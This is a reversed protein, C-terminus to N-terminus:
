FLKLLVNGVKKIIRVIGRVDFIVVFIVSLKM